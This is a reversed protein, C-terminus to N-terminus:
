RWNILQSSFENFDKTYLERFYNSFSGKEIIMQKVLKLLDAEDDVLSNIADDILEMVFDNCNMLDNNLCRYDFDYQKKMKGNLRKFDEDTFKKSIEYYKKLNEKNYFISKIFSPVAFCFPYPLADAMRIEIFNKVRVDPFVMTMAHLLDDDSLGYVESIEELTKEKTFKFKEDNFMIIPSTGMIYKAYDAYGFNRDLVGSPMKSRSDDTNEWIKIRLNKELYIEGEFIPSCDFIRSIFPSLFNAVRYKKIFDEESTYDISVQTAATGKMMNRAMNGKTHLYNYMYTYREKPLLPLESIKTLPHYGLAILAQTDLLIDEIEKIIDIYINQIEKIHELPKVSIEVQGGPEFTITNGDRSLALINGDERYDVNWGKRELAESISKQGNKEFYKYSRLSDKDVLFHEFEVGLLNSYKKEGAKIFSRIKEMYVESM